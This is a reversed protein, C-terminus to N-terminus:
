EYFYNSLKGRLFLRARFIRSKVNPLSLNLIEAVEANTLGEVDRLHFVARYPVPLENIANEIIEMRERSLFMEDSFHSLDQLELGKLMGDEVKYIDEEFSVNNRHKKETRLQSFSMKATVSYLWTSFTSEAHFTNMKEMLIIFVEQLVDEATIPNRTIRLATRYIKDAYRRVIENFAGENQSEVFSRVLKKDTLNKFDLIRNDDPYGRMPLQVSMENVKAHNHKSVARISPQEAVMNYINM